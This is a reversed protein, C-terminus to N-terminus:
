EKRDLMIDKGISTNLWRFQLERQAIEKKLWMNSRTLSNALTISQNPTHPNLISIHVFCKSIKNVNPM